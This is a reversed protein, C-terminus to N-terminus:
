NPINRRTDMSARKVMPAWSRKLAGMPTPPCGHLLQGRNDTPSSVSQATGPPSPHTSYFAYGARTAPRAWRMSKAEVVGESASKMPPTSEFRLSRSPENGVDKNLDSVVDWIEDAVAEAVPGKPWVGV